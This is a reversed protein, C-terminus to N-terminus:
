SRFLATWRSWALDLNVSWLYLSCFWNHLYMGLLCHLAVFVDNNCYLECDTFTIVEFANWASYWIVTEGLGIWAPFFCAIPFYLSQFGKKTKKLSFKLQLCRLVTRRWAGTRWILGSVCSPVTIRWCCLMNPYILWALPGMSLVSGWVVQREMVSVDATHVARWWLATKTEACFEHCVRWPHTCLPIHSYLGVWILLFWLMVSGSIRM